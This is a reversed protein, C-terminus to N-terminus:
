SGRARLIRATKPETQEGASPVPPHDPPAMHIRIVGSPEIEVDRVVLNEKAAARVARRVDRKKFAVPNYPMNQIVENGGV